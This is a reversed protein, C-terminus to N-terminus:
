SGTRHHHDENGAPKRIGGPNAERRSAEDKDGIAMQLSELWERPTDAFQVVESFERLSPLSNGVVPKGSALYEHLKLPYIYNAWGDKGYCMTCVDLGKIYNPLAERPKSGLLFVNPMRELRDLDSQTAAGRANRPGVLVFSWSLRAKSLHLLLGFDLKDNINGIYGIRPHPIAELDAPVPTEELRSRSFLEFDVAMPVNIANGYRNKAKLLTTGNAFVVDARRLLTDEQELLRQREPESAGTYGAFEDDVYYCSLAEGLTGVLGAYRPHWIFLVIDRFGLKKVTQRM